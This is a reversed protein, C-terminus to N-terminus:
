CCCSRRVLHYETIIGLCKCFSLVGTSHTESTGIDLETAVEQNHVLGRGMGYISLLNLLRELSPSAISAPSLLLGCRFSANAQLHPESVV